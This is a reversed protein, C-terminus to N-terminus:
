VGTMVIRHIKVLLDIEQRPVQLNTAIQDIPDGRRHMRLAQSRKSLNLSSKPVGAPAGVAPPHQRLERVEEALREMAKQVTQVAAELREGEARERRRAVTALMGARALAVLSFVASALSLGCLLAWPLAAIM